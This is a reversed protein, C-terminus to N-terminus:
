QDLERESVCRLRAVLASLEKLAFPDVPLVCAPIALQVASERRDTWDRPVVFTEASTGQLRFVDVGAMRKAEVALFRQERLPHFPHTIEVWGL